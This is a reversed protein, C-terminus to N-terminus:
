TILALGLIFWYLTECVIIIMQPHSWQHM